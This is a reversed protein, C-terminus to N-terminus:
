TIPLVAPKQVSVHVVSVQM